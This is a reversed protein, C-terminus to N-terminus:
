FFSALSLYFQSCTTSQFSEEDGSEQAADKDNEKERGGKDNLYQIM